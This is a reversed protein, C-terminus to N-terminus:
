LWYGGILSPYSPAIKKLGTTPSNEHDDSLDPRSPSRRVLVIVLPRGKGAHTMKINVVCTIPMAILERTNPPAIPM